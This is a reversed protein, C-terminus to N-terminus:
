ATKLSSRKDTLIYRGGSVETLGYVLDGHKNYSLDEPSPPYFGRNNYAYGGPVWGFVDGEYGGNSRSIYIAKNVSVAGQMREINVCYAWVGASKGDTAKLKRTTYDLEYQVLRTPNAATDTQYEGVIIRDPSATRDLAIFSHRFSFPSTFKYWRQLNVM